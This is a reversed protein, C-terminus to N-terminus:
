FSLEGVFFSRTAPQITVVPAGDARPELDFGGLGTTVGVILGDPGIKMQVPRAGDRGFTRIWVLQGEGDLKAVFGVPRGEFECPSVLDGAVFPAETTGAVFVEISDPSVHRVAVDIAHQAGPADLQTTWREVIGSDEADLLSVFISAGDSERESGDPLTPTADGDAVEGVIAASASDVLAIATAYAGFTVSHEGPGAYTLDNGPVGEKVDDGELGQVVVYGNGPATAVLELEPGRGCYRGATWVRTSSLAVDVDRAHHDDDDPDCASNENGVALPGGRRNQFTPFAQALGLFHRSAASTPIDFLSNFIADGTLAIQGAVADIGFLKGDDPGKGGVSPIFTSLLFRDGQSGVQQYRMAYPTGAFSSTAERYSGRFTGTIWGQGEDDVWVSEDSTADSVIVNFCPDDCVDALAGGVDLEGGDSGEGVAVMFPAFNLSTAEAPTDEFITGSYSGVAAWPFISSTTPVLAALELQGAAPVSVQTAWKWEGSGAPWETCSEGSSTSSMSSSTADGGTGGGGDSASSSSSSASAVSTTGGGSTADGSSAGTPEVEYPDFNAGILDACAGVLALAALGILLPRRDSRV